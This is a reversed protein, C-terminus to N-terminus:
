NLKQFIYLRIYKEIFSNVGIYTNSENTGMMSSKHRDCSNTLMVFSNHDSLPLLHIM